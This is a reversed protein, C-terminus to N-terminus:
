PKEAKMITIPNHQDIRAHVQSIRCGLREAFSEFTLQSSRNVANMAIRGRPALVNHLARLIEELRGGHGGVFVADPTPFEDLAASFFDAFQHIGPAHLAEANHQILRKCEARKEFAYIDLHPFQRKAEISVSGTCYGVDWFVRAAQLDLAQLTILRIPMKTIMNPRNPLGVFAEDPIGIPLALKRTREMIVCNLSAVEFEAAQALSGERVREAEGGLNEGVFMKYNDFGYQQLRQAIRKPTRIADTLVGIHPEQRILARDLARWDRGHLSLTHMNGYDLLFRHSLLQLAHHHPHVQMPVQPLARRITNAIGFFLPDGSAFIVLPDELKRYRGLLAEMKGEIMIWEHQHPLFPRVLEYHRRGGSFIRTQAITAQAAEPLQLAPTPSIGIVTIHLPSV